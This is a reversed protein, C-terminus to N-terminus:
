QLGYLYMEVFYLFIYINVIGSLEQDVGVQLSNLMILWKITGRKEIGQVATHQLFSDISNM